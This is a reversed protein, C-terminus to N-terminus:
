AFVGSVLPHALLGELVARGGGWEVPAAGGGDGASELFHSLTEEEEAEREGPTDCRRSRLYDLRGRDTGFFTFSSGDRLLASAPGSGPLVPAFRNWAAVARPVCMVVPLGAAEGVRDAADVVAREAAILLMAPTEKRRGGIMQWDHIVREEDLNWDARLKWRAYEGMRVAGRAGKPYAFGMKFWRDPLALLIGEAKGGASPAFGAVADALAPFVADPESRPNGSSAMTM